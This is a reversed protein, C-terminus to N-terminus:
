GTNDPRFLPLPLLVVVTKAVVALEEDLEVALEVEDAADALGVTGYALSSGFPTRQVGSVLLTGPGSGTRPLKPAEIM